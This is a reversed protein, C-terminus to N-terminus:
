HKYYYSKVSDAKLATNLIRLDDIIGPFAGSNISAPHGIGLYNLKVRSSKDRTGMNEGNVYFTPVSNNDMTIALHIWDGSTYSFDNSKRINGKEDAYVLQYTRNSPNKEFTLYNKNAGSSTYSFIGPYYRNSETAFDLGENMKMWLMVTKNEMLWLNGSHFDVFGDRGTFRVASSDKGDVWLVNNLIGVMGSYTNLDITNKNQHYFSTYVKDGQNENFAWERSMDRIESFMSNTIKINSFGDTIGFRSDPSLVSDIEWNNGGGTTSFLYLGYELNGDNIIKIETNQIKINEGWFPPEIEPKKSVWCLSFIGYNRRINKLTDGDFLISNNKITINKNRLIFGIAANNRENFTIRNGIVDVSDVGQIAILFLGAEKTTRTNEIINNIVKIGNTQIKVARKYCNIFTCNEVISHSYLNENKLRGVFKIGDADDASRINKFLSNKIYINTCIDKASNAKPNSDLLVGTASKNTNTIDVFECRDVLVNHCRKLDLGVSWLRDTGSLNIFRSNKFTVNSCSWMYIGKAPVNKGDIRLNLFEINKQNVFYFLCNHKAHTYNEKNGLSDAIIWTNLGFNVVVNSKYFLLTSTIKYQNNEPFYLTDGASLSRIASKLAETDDTEGDGLAGYTKV